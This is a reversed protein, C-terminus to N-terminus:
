ERNCNQLKKRIRQIANDVSKEPRCIEDSIESYTKGELYKELIINELRSLSKTKEKFENYAETSIIKEEPNERDASYLGAGDDLSVYNNMVFNKGSNNKRVADIIQRKVCLSAFSKFNPCKIPDFRLIARYLGIMGEQVLDDRAGGTLFFSRACKLVMSKYRTLLEDMCGDAGVKAQLAIEEDSL